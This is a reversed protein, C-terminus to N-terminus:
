LPLTINCHSAIKTVFDSSPKTNQQLFHVRPILGAAPTPLQLGSFFRTRQPVTNVHFLDFYM